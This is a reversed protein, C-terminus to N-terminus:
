DEKIKKLLGGKLYYANNHKKSLHLAVELSIKGDECLFIVPRNPSFTLKAIEEKSKHEANKLIEKLHSSPSINSKSLNYISCNIKNNIIRLLQSYHIEVYEKDENTFNTEINTNNKTHSTLKGKNPIIKKFLFTFTLGKLSLIGALIFPFIQNYDRYVWGGIAPGLVRALSSLSQHIGLVGGQNEKPTVLSICGTLCTYCLAYGLSMLTVAITLTRIEPISIGIFGFCMFIFGFIIINKEGWKPIWYRVFFGQTIALILGIFAFGFSSMSSDWKFRDKMLLFLPVEVVTLSLSLLFFLLLLKGLYPTQIAKSFRSFFSQFSTFYENWLSHQPTHPLQNKRQLFRKFSPYFNYSIKEKVQPHSEKITFIAIVFALFCFLSAIFAVLSFGMTQDFIGLFGGLLPGIVFGLGFSAGILGMNKSRNKSSTYDSMITFSTSVTIGFLGALARALFLHTLQTALSFWLYSIGTFLLSLVLVPKRGWRDCGRGWFPSVIFQVISYISMLLGVQLDDAGFDKALYPSLPIIMGLSTLELSVVSFILFINKKKM